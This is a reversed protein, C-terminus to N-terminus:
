YITIPININIPKRHSRRHPTDAATGSRSGSLRHVKRQGRDSESDQTYYVIPKDYKYKNTANSADDSYDRSDEEAHRDNSAKASPKSNSVKVGSTATNQTPKPTM